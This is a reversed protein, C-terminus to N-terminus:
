TAIRRVTPPDAGFGHPLRDRVAARTVVARVPPRPAPGYPRRRNHARPRPVRPPRPACPSAAGVWSIVSPRRGRPVRFGHPPGSVPRCSHRFGPPCPGVRPGVNHFGHPPGYRGDGWNRFPFGYPAGDRHCRRPAVRPRGVHPIM